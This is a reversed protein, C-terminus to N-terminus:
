SFLSPDPAPDTGRVLPYPDPLGVCAFGASGSRWCQCLSDRIKYLWVWLYQVVCCKAMHLLFFRHQQQLGEKDMIVTAEELGSDGLCGLGLLEVCRLM